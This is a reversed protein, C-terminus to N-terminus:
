KKTKESLASYYEFNKGTVIDCWGGFVWVMKSVNDSDFDPPRDKELILYWRATVNNITEEFTSYALIKILEGKYIVNRSKIYDGNKPEYPISVTESKFSPKKRMRTNEKFYLYTSPEPIIVEQDDYIVKEGATVKKDSSFCVNGKLDTVVGYYRISKYDPEVLYEGPIDLSWGFSNYKLNNHKVNNLFLDNNFKLRNDNLSFTGTYVDGAYTEFKYTKDRKFEIHGEGLSFSSDCLFDMYKNQNSQAYASIVSFFILASLFVKKM